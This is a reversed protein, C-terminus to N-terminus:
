GFAREKRILSQQALFKLGAEQLTMPAQNAAETEKAIPIELAWQETDYTATEMGMGARAFGGGPARKKLEDRFWYSKTFTYYTGSKNDAKVAPFARLAIFRSDAQMYGLLMGTLVPDVAAVDNITPLTM